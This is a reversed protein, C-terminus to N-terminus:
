LGEAHPLEASPQPTPNGYTYQPTALIKFSVNGCVECITRRVGVSTVVLTHKHLCERAFFRSWVKRM